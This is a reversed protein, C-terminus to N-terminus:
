NQRSMILLAITFTQLTIAVLLHTQLRPLDNRANIYGLFLTALVIVQMIGALLKSVSFDTHIQENRRRLELLIQEALQELRTPGANSKPTASSVPGSRSPSSPSPTISPRSATSRAAPSAPASRPPPAETAPEPKANQEIVDAAQKLSVVTFDPLAGNESQAAPSPALQPDVFLITRCGASRGAEIDRPADGVLWSRDLDLAMADAAVLMMGPKPKRLDSDRRYQEVQADPHFPCFEHRDIIAAPNQAALLADLRANVARVADEGFMGRAVGSQNSVVVTAYGMSRLRAIAAAAGDVLVVKAPDGLYGDSVILTNDRDFFVAPRKM